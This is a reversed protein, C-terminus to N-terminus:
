TSQERRFKELAERTDRALDHLDSLLQRVEDLRGNRALAEIQRLLRELRTAAVNAAAGAVAHAARYVAESEDSEVAAELRALKRDLLGLFTSVAVEALNADGGLQSDLSSRDFIPTEPDPRATHNDSATPGDAAPEVYQTVVELFRNIELPKSLYDNMGASICTARDEDSSYATLAVIPVNPNLVGSAGARIRRSTEVGDMGPLRIDMLVLNYPREALLDLAQEGSGAIDATLGGRALIKRAVVQNIHNDEVLLINPESM